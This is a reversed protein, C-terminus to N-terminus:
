FLISKDLYEKKTSQRNCEPFGEWSNGITLDSRRRERKLERGGRYCLKFKDVVVQPFWLNSKYESKLVILAKIAEKFKICELALNEKLIM